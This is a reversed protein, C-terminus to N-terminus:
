LGSVHYGITYRLISLADKNTARGDGNIDAAKLQVDSLNILHIAYRQVLMSDKATIKGDGNVDSKKQVPIDPTDPVDPTNKTESDIQTDTSTDTNSDNLSDTDTETDTKEDSDSTVDLISYPINNDKAFTEAYSDHYCYFTLSKCNDFSSKDISIVSKPVIINKLSTCDAFSNSDIKLVSDPLEVKKVALNGKFAASGIETVSKNDIAEPVAVSVKTGNYKTVTVENDSIIYEFDGYTHIPTEKDTSTNTDINTNDM